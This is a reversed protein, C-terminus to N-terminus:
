EDTQEDMDYMYKTIVIDLTVSKKTKNHIKLDQDPLFARNRVCHSYSMGGCISLVPSMLSTKLTM